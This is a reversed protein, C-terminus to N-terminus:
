FLNQKAQNLLMEQIPTRELHQLYQVLGAFFKGGFEVELNNHDGGLFWLGKHAIGRKMCADHMRQGHWSPVIEDRTGHIVLVPCCINNIKNINVFLDGPLTFRFKFIVRYISVM